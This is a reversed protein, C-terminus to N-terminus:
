AQGLATLIADPTLRISRRTAAAGPLPACRVIDSSKLLDASRTLTGIVFTEGKFAIGRLETLEGIDVIAQPAVPRRNMMPILNPKRSPARAKQGRMVLLDLANAVGTARVYAFAAAKM